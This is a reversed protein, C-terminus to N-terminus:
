EKGTQLREAKRYESRMLITKFANTLDKCNKLTVAQAQAHKKFYM